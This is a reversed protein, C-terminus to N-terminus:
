SRIKLKMAPNRRGYAELAEYVARGTDAPHALPSANVNITVYIDGGGGRGPTVRVREPGREGVGILAPSTFTADLGNGYWGFMQEHAEASVPTGYRSAIYRFMATFQGAATFPNGGWQYYESPGNIFQAVGYAGSTPNTATLSYGAERMEVANFAPWMFAPWPFLARAVAEVPGGPGGGGSVPLTRLAGLVGHAVAREMAALTATNETRLWGTMGPVGDRYTGGVTGGAAFGPIRGRLHDVMGAAVMGAPVVLEGRQARILQDDVGPAGSAVFLGRAAHPGSIPSGQVISYSGTGSVHITARESKVQRLWGVLVRIEAATFGSKDHLSQLYRIQRQIESSAGALDGKTQVQQKAFSAAAVTSALVSARNALAAASNGKLGASNSDLQAKAQQLAQRWALEDGQLTLVATVNKDLANTLTQVAITVANTTGTASNESQAWARIKEAAAPTIRGNAALIDNLTGSKVILTKAQDTTLGYQSGLSAFDGSLNQAEAAARQQAATLQDTQDTLGGQAGRGLRFNRVIFGYNTSAKGLADSLRQYGAVNLGTAQNQKALEATVDAISGKFTVIKDILVGVGVAALGVWVLPNVADLATTTALLGKEALTAGKTAAMFGVMQESIAAIGTLRLVGSLLGLKSLALAIGGIGLAVATLGGAHQALFTITDTLGTITASFLKLEALGVGGFSELLAFLAHAIKTIDGGLLTLAPAAERSLFRIFQDIGSSTTFGALFNELGKGAADALQAVPGLLQGALHLGTNFVQFTQPEMAKALDIYRSKLALVSLAIQQQGADMVAWAQAMQATSGTVADKVNIITPIALAGFAAIGTGAAVVPAAMGSFALGVGGAAGLWSKQADANKKVSQTNKDVSGSAGDVSRRFSDFAASANKDRTIIEFIMTELNSAM